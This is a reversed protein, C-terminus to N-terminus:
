EVDFRMVYNNKTARHWHPLDERNPDQNKVFESYYTIMKDALDYDVQEFPRWCRDLTHFAYWLDSSHFSGRKDGPLDRTFYSRYSSIDRENEEKTWKKAMKRLIPAALDNKTTSMISPM